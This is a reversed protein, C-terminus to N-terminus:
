IGYNYFLLLVRDTLGEATFAVEGAVEEVVEELGLFVAVGLVEVEYKFRIM